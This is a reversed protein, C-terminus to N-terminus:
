IRGQKTCDRYAPRGVTCVWEEDHMAIAAEM